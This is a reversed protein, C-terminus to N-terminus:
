EFEGETVKIRYIVPMANDRTLKGTLEYWNPRPSLANTIAVLKWRTDTESRRHENATLFFEIKPGRIGKVEIHEVTRGRKATLDWGYKDSEVSSVTWGEAGYADTVVQIAAHEVQRNEAANGFGGGRLDESLEEEPKPPLHLKVSNPVGAGSRM